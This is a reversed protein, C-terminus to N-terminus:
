ESTYQFLKSKGSSKARYLAEDAKKLMQSFEFPYESYFLYGGSMRIPIKDLGTITIVTNMMQDYLEEIGKELEKKSNGFAFMVFEDGGLRAVIKNPMACEKLLNAAAIIAMDGGAHGFNDNIEKLEDMDIMIMVAETINSCNGFIKKMRRYFGRRNLIGTLLDYDRDHELQIKELIEETVDTIIGFSEKENVVTQIKLYCEKDKSLQYVDKYQEVVNECISDIKERFKEKDELLEATEERSLMLLRGIKDTALVRKMNDYYEYVGVQVEAANFIDSMRTMNNLLSNVMKNINSSLEVFEPTTDVEVHEDLNGGTIETLGEIVTDIGQIVYKDIQSLIAIIMVLALIALCIFVPIMGPLITRYMVSKSQSVGILQEGCDKFVCYSSEGAVIANFGNNVSYKEPLHIGAEDLSMNMLKQETAGTITGSKKDVVYLISGEEPTVMSFIYSLENKEMAKLLRVPEMGIQIINEGNEQWVATYQMLKQEATNPMIDQALELSKDKLMPLFFEMQEGSHFTYGFYKPESGAYLCGDGDFVHFEDIQLLSAIKKMENQDNIIDPNNQIIYAAAKARIIYDEKLSQKLQVTDQENQELIQEIQNIKIRSGREMSERANKIQLFYNMCMTLLTTTLIIIILRKAIQKKM